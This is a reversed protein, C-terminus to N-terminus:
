VKRFTRKCVSRVCKITHGPSTPSRSLARSLRSRGQTCRAAADCARVTCSTDMCGLAFPARRTMERGFARASPSGAHGLHQQAPCYDDVHEQSARARGSRLSPAHLPGRAARGQSSATRRPLPGDAHPCTSGCLRLGQRQLRCLVPLPDVRRRVLGRSLRHPRGRRLWRASPQRTGRGELAARTTSHNCANSAALSPELACAM